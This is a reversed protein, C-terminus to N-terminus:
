KSSLMEELPPNTLDPIQLLDRLILTQSWNQGEVWKLNEDWHGKCNYIARDLYAYSIECFKINGESDKLFDYAMTQFKMKKSIELGLKVCNMDIEDINYDLKGSGSARFDDERNWRRFAFARNGITTVRTDFKNGPLFEQFLVYQKHPVWDPVMRFYQIPQKLLKRKRTVLVSKLNNFFRNNLAKLGPVYGVHTGKGFMMKIMKIMESRKKILRVSKAGAGGYLKFVVPLNATEAWELAKDKEWFIWSEAFPFGHAKMRYYERIKDDFLWSVNTDPFCPIKYDNEVVPIIAKARFRAIDWNGWFFVFADLDPIKSWFDQDSSCLREVNIGNHLLIKEVGLTKPGMTGLPDFHLGVTKSPLAM